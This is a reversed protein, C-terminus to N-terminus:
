VAIPGAWALIESICWASGTFMRRAPVVSDHDLVTAAQRNSALDVALIARDRSVLLRLARLRANRRAVGRSPTHRRPSLVDEGTETTRVTM